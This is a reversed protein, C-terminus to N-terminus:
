RYYYSFHLNIITVNGHFKKQDIGQGEIITARDNTIFALVSFAEFM